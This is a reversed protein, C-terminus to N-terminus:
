GSPASRLPTLTLARGHDIDPGRQDDDVDLIIEAEAAAQRDGAAVLDNREDVVEALAEGRDHQRLIPVRGPM